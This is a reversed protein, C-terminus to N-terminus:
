GASPARPTEFRHMCLRQALTAGAVAFLVPVLYDHEVRTFELALVIATIPMRMSAALFAAAGVIAYMGLPVPPWALNWLAGTIIALMAGLTMGPTLQGGDAGARLCGVIALLKLLLLTGALPLGVADDFGLQIPGKGNGLLQPYPIAALGLLGFALLCYPLLRADRPARARAAATLRAFGYGLAGFLPGALIAWLVLAYSLQLPPVTYQAENGLGLWAVTAAIVASLLAPIALAPAFSGLLVELVFLAGGLPVNYVAALGAGAGCALMIRREEANLGYRRALQEAFVAGVERPAVERGLPSGLAVTVIQLLAHALTSVVPMHATDSQLARAISVLPRGYRYVAWWGLGAIGGCALLVLVRRWPAAATVGQLFSQAGRLAHLDYGYALHQLGHLLLALLMGGLGAAVGIAITVLALVPLPTQRREASIHAPASAESM